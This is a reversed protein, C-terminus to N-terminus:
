RLLAPRPEAGLADGIAPAGTTAPGPPALDADATARKMWPVEASGDYYRHLLYAIEVSMVFAMV